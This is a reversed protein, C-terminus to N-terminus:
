ASVFWQFKFNGMVFTSSRWYCTITTSNTITGFVDIQDMTAEDARSGKGTYPGVAQKIDVTKGVVLGGSTITFSGVKVPTVAALNVETTTLVPTGTASFDNTLPTIYVKALGSLTIATNSNTSNIVNRTLTSAAANWVGTGVESNSGDAIGYSYTSGDVAGAQVMTLFGSVATGLTM